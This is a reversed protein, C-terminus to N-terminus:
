DTGGRPNHSYAPSQLCASESKPHQMEPWTGHRQGSRVRFSGSDISAYWEFIHECGSWGVDKQPVKSICQAKHSQRGPQDLESRQTVAGCNIQIHHVSPKTKM